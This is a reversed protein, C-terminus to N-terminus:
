IINNMITTVPFIKEYRLFDIINLAVKAERCMTVKESSLKQISWCQTEQLDKTIRWETSMIIAYLLLTIEYLLLIEYSVNIDSLSFLPNFNLM